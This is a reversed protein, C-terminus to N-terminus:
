VWNPDTIHRREHEIALHYCRGTLRDDVIMLPRGGDPILVRARPLDDPVRTRVVDYGPDAACGALLLLPLLRKMEAGDSQPWSGLNATRGRHPHLDRQRKQRTRESGRDLAM